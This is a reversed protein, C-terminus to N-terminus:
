KKLHDFKGKRYTKETGVFIDQRCKPCSVYRDEDKIYPIYFHCDQCHTYDYIEEESENDTVEDFLNLIHNM